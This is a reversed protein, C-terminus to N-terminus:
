PNRNNLTQAQFAYRAQGATVFACVDAGSKEGVRYPTFLGHERTIQNFGSNKVVPYM